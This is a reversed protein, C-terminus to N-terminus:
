GRRPRDAPDIAPRRCSSWRPGVGGDEIAFVLRGGLVTTFDALDAAVDRSPTYVFDLAEFGIPLEM